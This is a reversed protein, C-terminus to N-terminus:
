KGHEMRNESNDQRFCVVSESLVAMVSTSALQGLERRFISREVEVLLAKNAVPKLYSSCWERAVPSAMQKVWEVDWAGQASPLPCPAGSQAILHREIWWVDGLGKLVEVFLVGEDAVTRAKATDWDIIRGEARLRSLLRRRDRASKAFAMPACLLVVAIILPLTSLGIILGIPALIIKLLAPPERSAIQNKAM